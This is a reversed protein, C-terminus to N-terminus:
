NFHVLGTFVRIILGTTDNVTGTVDGTGHLTSYVGTGDVIVWTGKNAFINPDDTVTEIIETQITFTGSQGDFRLVLHTVVGFPSPLASVLRKETLLNGSDSFAGSTTFSGVAPGLPKTTSIVLVQQESAAAAGVLALSAMMVTVLAVLRLYGRTSSTLLRFSINVLPM